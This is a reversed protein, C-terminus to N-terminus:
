EFEGVEVPDFEGADVSDFEGVDVSNFEGVEVSVIDGSSVAFCDGGEVGSAVGELRNTTVSRNVPVGIKLSDANRGRDGTKEWVSFKEGDWNEGKWLNRHADM